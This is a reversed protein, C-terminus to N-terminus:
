PPTPRRRSGTEGLRRTVALSTSPPPGGAFHGDRVDLADDAEEGAHSLKNRESDGILEEDM